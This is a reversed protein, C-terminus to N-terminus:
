SNGALEELTMEYGSVQEIRSYVADKEGAFLAREIVDIGTLVQVGQAKLGEWLRKNDWTKARDEALTANYIVQARYKAQDVEVPMMVGGMAKNPRRKTHTDRAAMFEAETMPRVRFAFLLKGQRAIEIPHANEAADAVQGTAELIGQLLADENALLEDRKEQNNM